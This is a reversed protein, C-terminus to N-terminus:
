LNFNENIRQRAEDISMVGRKHYVTEGFENIFITEPMAFGGITRYFSDEKDQWFTLNQGIGMNNIYENIQSLSEKRNIAIVEIKDKYEKQIEAFDPLEDVCFPCWTAWSNVVLPKDLAENLKVPNNNLDKFNLTLVKNQNNNEQENDNPQPQILTNNSTNDSRGFTLWGIAVIAIIILIITIAKNM